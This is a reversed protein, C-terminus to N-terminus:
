QWFTTGHRSVQPLAHFAKVLTCQIQYSEKVIDLRFNWCERTHAICCKAIIHIFADM